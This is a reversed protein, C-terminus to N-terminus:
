LNWTNMTFFPQIWTVKRNMDMNKYFAVEIM